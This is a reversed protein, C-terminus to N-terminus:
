ALKYTGPDLNLFRFDGPHRLPDYPRGHQRRFAHRHRRSARRGVRGRRLRLHQRELGAGVADPVAGLLLALVLGIPRKM